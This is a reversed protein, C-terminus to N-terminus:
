LKRLDEESIFSPGGLGMILELKLNNTYAAITKVNNKDMLLLPGNFKGALVGGCLGDPFDNGYAVVATKINSGFFTKAIAVSTKYRDAGYVRQVTTNKSKLADAIDNSVVASGGILYYKKSTLQGLYNKQENTLKDGVVVIPKGVASASLADAFNMGSCVLVDQSTTGAEKLIAINTAYRDRGGLRKVNYGALKDEFDKSVAGEGGLIYVTGGPNLNSSIYKAVKDQSWSRNNVLLMPADKVKSLYAGSLADAYGEGSAVILNDFKSVGMKSKYKNAITMATDYRDAGYVREYFLVPETTDGPMPCARAPMERYVPIYFTIVSNGIDGQKLNSAENYAGKVYTMYQHTAVNSLGNMVNFKKLYLTNQNNHVYSQAYHTAGGLISKIRTDWGQSKAYILGYQVADYGGSAYARVNFFNYYGEFGKVTGSISGGRGDSGQEVLIMSALVYPNVGAQKGAYILADSYTDYGEEPFKNALFTGAVMKKLGDVTQTQGDYSHELFQFIGNEDLFNRPDMFYEVIGRSAAVYGGSDFVKYNGDKDFAEPERSKWSDPQSKHVLNNSVRSLEKKIVDEWNIGVIQSKFEWTPHAAHLKRLGNKYSEPFDQATLKDEFVSDYVYEPEKQIILYDGHAYGVYNSYRVKYWNGTKELVTMVTGNPVGTIINNEATTPSSRLNIGISINVTATDASAKDALLLTAAFILMLACIIVVISKQKKEVFM